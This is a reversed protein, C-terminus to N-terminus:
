YYSMMKMLNRSIFVTILRGLLDLFIDQKHCQILKNRKRMALQLYRVIKVRIYKKKNLCLGTKLKCCFWNHITYTTNLREATLMFENVYVEYANQSRYIFNQPHWRNANIYSKFYYKLYRITILDPHYRWLKQVVSPRFKNEDFLNVKKFINHKGHYPLNLKLMSDAIGNIYSARFYYNYKTEDTQIFKKVKRMSIVGLKFLRLYRFIVDRLDNYSMYIQQKGLPMIYKSILDMKYEREIRRCNRKYNPYENKIM